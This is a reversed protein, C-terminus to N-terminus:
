IGINSVSSKQKSRGLDVNIEGSESQTIGCALLRVALYSEMMMALEALTRFISLLSGLCVVADM